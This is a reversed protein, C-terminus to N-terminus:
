AEGKENRLYEEAVFYTLEYTLIRAQNGDEEKFFLM